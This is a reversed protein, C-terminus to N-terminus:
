GSGACHVETLSFRNCQKCTKFTISYSTLTELVKVTYIFM